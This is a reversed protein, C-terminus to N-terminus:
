GKHTELARSPPRRSPPRRSPPRRQSPRAMQSSRQYRPHAVGAPAPFPALLAAHPTGWPGLCLRLRVPIVRAGSRTVPAM